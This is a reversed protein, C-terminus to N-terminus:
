KLISDYLAQYQGYTNGIEYDYEIVKRADLGLQHLKGDPLELLEIWANALARPDRPPIVMGTNRILLKSDGVDTSVCPTGCSMAEAISLPLAEGYASSLSVIDVGAFLRPMDLRIGLLHVQEFVGTAQILTMLTQNNSTMGEGALIFHANPYKATLYNAAEVFTPHDKQPHFRAFMGIIPAEADIGLEQRLTRGAYKDPHFKTTDIGNPIVIMKEPKYGAFIHSQYVAEACCIIKRPMWRSLKANVKVIAMTRRRVTKKNGLTHHLGWVVPINGCIRAAWGGLFDSHYMWTQIIEPPDKHLINLLRIFASPDAIGPYMNLHDVRIGLARITDSLQGTSSLSIVRMSKGNQQEHRLINYLMMEAGGIELGTIVHDIRM